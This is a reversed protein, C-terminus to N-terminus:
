FFKAFIIIIIMLIMNIYSYKDKLVFIVPDYGIKELRALKIIRLVWYLILFSILFLIWSSNYLKQSSLSFSYLLWIISSSFGLAYCFIIIQGINKRKYGRGLIKDNRNKKLESLRKVLALMLFFSFAFSLLWYSIEIDTVINGLIIRIVFLFSIILTDIWIIKKLFLSYFISIIVYIFFYKIITFSFINLLFSLALSALILSYVFSERISLLDAAIPRNKKSNHLQDNKKDIIDNIIYTAATILSLCVFVILAGSWKPIDINNAALLPLFILLNKISHEIRCSLLIYKIKLFM